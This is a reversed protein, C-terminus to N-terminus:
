YDGGEEGGFMDMGGGIEAEEEEPEEEKVEEEAADGGAGGGGGGGGGGSGFKALMETGSELVENLDKGELDGILKSLRASDAELGVASMAKTVDDASPTANGGVVLMMYVALEKM